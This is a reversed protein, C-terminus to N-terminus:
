KTLIDKSMEFNKISPFKTLIDAPNKSSQVYALKVRKKHYMDRVFHYRLDIHKTKRSQANHAGLTLASQNDGVLNFYPIKIGVEHLLNYMAMSEKTAEFMGIYESEASSIAVDSEKRSFWSIPNGNLLIIAGCQSKRDRHDGAWDADTVTTLKFFLEEPYDYVVPNDTKDVLRFDKFDIRQKNVGFILTFNKTQNLYNMTRLAAKLHYDTPCEQYRSLYSVTFALDFRVTSALFGFMGVYSRYKQHAEPDLLKFESTDRDFGQSIPTSITRTTLTIKSDEVMREITDKLSLSYGEGNPLKNLNMGLFMRPEGMDKMVFKQKLIAAADEIDKNTKGTILIDDVYILIICHKKRLLCPELISATFGHRLLENTLTQYWIRPSQKLGYLSKNLKWIVDKSKTVGTPPQLYVPVDLDGNLFANKADLQRINWNKMGALSLVLRLSDYKMVPSYIDLYNVGIEQTFGKAVLRVKFRDYNNKTVSDQEQKVAFVLRSKVILATSPVESRKIKKYVRNEHISQLEEQLAKKWENKQPTKLADALTEPILYKAKNVLLNVDHEEIEPSEDQINGNLGVTKASVISTTSTQPYISTRNAVPTQNRSKDFVNISVKSTAKGIENVSGDPNIAKAHLSPGEQVRKKQKSVLTIYEDDDNAHIIRKSSPNLAYKHSLELARQYDEMPTSTSPITVDFVPTQPITLELAEKDSEPPPSSSPKNYELLAQTEKDKILQQKDNNQMSNTETSQNSKALNLLGDENPINSPRHSLRIVNETHTHNSTILEKTLEQMCILSKEHNKNQNELLKNQNELLILTLNDRSSTRQTENYTNAHKSIREVQTEPISNSPLNDNLTTIRDSFEPNPSANSLNQTNDDLFKQGGTKNNNQDVEVSEYEKNVEKDIPSTLSTDSIRIQSDPGRDVAETKDTLEKENSTLNPSKLSQISSMNISSMSSSTGGGIGLLSSDNSSGQLTTTPFFENDNKDKNSKIDYWNRKQLPFINEIAKFASSRVIKKNEVDLIFAIKNTNDYGLFIGSKYDTFVKQDNNYNYYFMLCGFPSMDLIDKSKGSIKKWPSETDLNRPIHNLVYIAHKFAYTWLSKSIGSQKMLLRLKQKVQRNANEATGNQFSSNPATFEAAIGNDECFQILKVTRFENDARLRVVSKNQLHLINNLIKIISITKDTVESKHNLIYCSLYKTKNDVCVLAYQNYIPGILDASLMEGEIPEDSSPKGYTKNVLGACDLCYDPIKDKVKIGLTSLQNKSAHGFKLHGSFWIPKEKENMMHHGEDEEGLIKDLIEDEKEGYDKFTRTSKSDNGLVFYVQQEEKLNRVNLVYLKDKLSVQCIISNGKKITCVCDNQFSDFGEKNLLSLSIINRPSDKIYVVNKLVLNDNLKVDGVIDYRKKANVTRINMQCNKVNSLWKKDNVVHVTAGTDLLFEDDEEMLNIEEESEKEDLIFHCSDDSFIDGDVDLSAELHNVSEKKATCKGSHKKKCNKCFPKHKKKQVLNVEESDAFKRKFSKYMQALTIADLDVDEVNKPKLSTLERLFEKRDGKPLFSAFQILQLSTPPIYYNMLKILVSYEEVEKVSPESTNRMKDARLFLQIQEFIDMQSNMEDLAYYYEYGKLKSSVSRVIDDAFYQKIFSNVISGFIVPNLDSSVSKADMIEDLNCHLFESQCLNVFHEKFKLWDVKQTSKVSVPNAKMIAICNAKETTSADRQFTVVGNEITCLLGESM